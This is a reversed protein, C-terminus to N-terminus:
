HPGTVIEVRSFVLKENQYEGFAVRLGARDAVAAMKTADRRYIGAVWWGNEEKRWEVEPFMDRVCRYTENDYVFVIEGDPDDRCFVLDFPPLGKKTM